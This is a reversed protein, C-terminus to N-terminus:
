AVEQFLAMQVELSSLLRLLSACETCHVAGPAGNGGCDTCHTIRSQFDWRVECLDEFTPQYPGPEEYDPLEAAARYAAWSGSKM